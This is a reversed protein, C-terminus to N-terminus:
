VEEVEEVSAIDVSRWGRARGAVMLAEAVVAMEYAESATYPELAADQDVAVAGM